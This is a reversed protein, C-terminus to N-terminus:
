FFFFSFFVPCPWPFFWYMQLYSLLFMGFQFAFYIFLCVFISLVTFFILLCLIYLIKISSLSSLFFLASFFLIFYCHCLIKELFLLLCWVLSEPFQSCFLYEEGERSGWCFRFFCIHPCVCAFGIWVTSFLVLKSVSICIWFLLYVVTDGSIFM